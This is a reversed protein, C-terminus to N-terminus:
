RPSLERFGLPPAEAVDRGQCLVSIRGLGAADTLEVLARRLSFHGALGDAPPSFRLAAGIGLAALFDTQTTVGLTRLGAAEGAHRLATLDVSATIDQRGVRVYPDAGATHRCFTLLTGQRRWPAYLAAAEYGYDLTLLYGRRLARAANEIWATAELGAESECGEGPLVGLAAFHAVLEPGADSEVDVFRDGDAGVRRERLAGDSLTVRHFPLADLLENSLICGEIEPSPPLAKAVEVKALPLRAQSLREAAAVTAPTLDQMVYRLAEAFGPEEAAAADIVAAALAGAVAGAEFVDFRAPRDLRRWFDALQRCIAAGFAPHLNPSSEYDLRPDSTFYYGATPDYLALRMFEAFSISGAAAIRDLILRKLGRDDGPLGDASEM